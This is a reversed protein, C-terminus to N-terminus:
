WERRCRSSTRVFRMDTQNIGIYSRFTQNPSEHGMMAAITLIDTGARYHRNGFTARLDHSALKIGAAKGIAKDRKNITTLSMNYLKGMHETLMLRGPDSKYKEVLKARVDLWSKLPGRTAKSM